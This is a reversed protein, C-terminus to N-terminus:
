EDWHNSLLGNSIVVMMMMGVVRVVCTKVGRYCCCCDRSGEKGHISLSGGPAVGGEEEVEDKRMNPAETDLNTVPARLLTEPPLLLLLLLLLAAAAPPTPVPNGLVVGAAKDAAVEELLLVVVAAAGPEECGGEEVEPPPVGRPFPEAVNGELPDWFFRSSIIPDLRAKAILLKSWKTCLGEMAMADRVPRPPLLLLLDVLPLPLPIPLLVLLLELLLLLLLLLLLPAAARGDEVVPVVEGAPEAEPTVLPVIEGASGVEVEGSLLLRSNKWACICAWARARPWCAWGGTAGECGERSGPV